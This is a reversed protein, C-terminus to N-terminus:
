ADAEAITTVTMTQNHLDCPGQGFPSLEGYSYFGVVPSGPPLADAVADLEEETREGLVLRRGICSVAVGLCPGDGPSALAAADGAGTVLRDFNARMLQAFSGTPVDGAFTLSQAAEDVALVTRVLHKRDDAAARLALPFLLATAPLGAARDGLYKKYLALAPQHDLEYLVNGRSRTVVREPGFVDWGGKSGHGVRVRPGYLGAAVVFGGEPRRARLVWTRKFATADGALGGTVPARAGLVDNLGRVLETGNVLLGDSYVLVGALDPADLSEALLRGARRSDDASRVPASATRVRSGQFRLAAVSLGADRREHRHIEGSTSCGVAPSAPMARALDDFPRPDDALSSAGFALVLTDPSDLHAPLPETWGAGPEYRALALSTATPATPTPM